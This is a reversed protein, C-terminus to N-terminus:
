YKSYVARIFFYFEDFSQKMGNYRNIGRDFFGEFLTMIKNRERERVITREPMFFERFLTWFFLEVIM